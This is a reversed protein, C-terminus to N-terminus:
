IAVKCTSLSLVSAYTEILRTTMKEVSFQDRALRRGAAAMSQRLSKYNVLRALTTTLMDVRCSVVAGAGAMAVENHIGVSDSIVVPLGGALAEVVSVGFNESYSPLVFLDASALAALKEAGGLFGAWFIDGEIGLRTAERRLGAVFQPEGTGALVLGINPQRSRLDAFARLLIDLGKKPDLRSLFLVITRGALHPARERIWGAAPLHAFPQLDIGMPLVITREDVGLEAAESREQESTFHIAAAGGLIHREILYFSIHKLWPRRQHMGLRGLTGLPRVIYPVGRRAAFLAAPLTTYSFLAHIHVLDYDEVHRALWCTLPWSATYFRTQRRFYWCTVGDQRIPQELLV